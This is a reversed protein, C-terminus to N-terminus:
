GTNMWALWDTDVHISQVIGKIALHLTHRGDSAGAGAYKRRLVGGPVIYFDDLAERHADPEVGILFVEVLKSGAHRDLGLNVQFLGMASLSRFVAVVPRGAILGQIMAIVTVMAVKM